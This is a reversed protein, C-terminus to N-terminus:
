RSSWLNRAGESFVAAIGLGLVVWIGLGALISFLTSIPRSRPPHTEHSNPAADSPSSADHPRDPNGRSATVTPPRKGVKDSLPRAPPRLDGKGAHGAQEFGREPNPVPNDSAPITKSKEAMSTVKNM